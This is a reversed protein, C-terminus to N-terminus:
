VVALAQTVGYIRDFLVDLVHDRFAYVVLTGFFLMAFTHCAALAFNATVCSVAAFVCVTLAILMVVIGVLECRDFRDLKMVIIRRSLKRITIIHLEYRNKSIARKYSFAFAPLSGAM